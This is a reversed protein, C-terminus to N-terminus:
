LWFRRRRAKENREAVAIAHHYFGLSDLWSFQRIANSLEQAIFSQKHTIGEPLSKQAGSKYNLSGGHSTQIKLLEGLKAEAWLLAATMNQARKNM